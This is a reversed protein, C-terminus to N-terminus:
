WVIARERCPENDPAATFELDQRMQAPTLRGKFKCLTMSGEPVDRLLPWQEAEALTLLSYLISRADAPKAHHLPLRGDCVLKTDSLTYILIETDTGATATLALPYIPRGAQFKLVLPATMGQTAVREAATPVVKATVFCWGRDAYGQLVRRDEDGCRFENEKLWELIADASPGRIVKVDYIGANEKIIVETEIDAEILEAPRSLPSKTIGLM